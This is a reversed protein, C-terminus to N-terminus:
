PLIPSPLLPTMPADFTIADGNLNPLSYHDIDSAPTPRYFFFTVLPDVSANPTVTQIAWPLALFPLMGDYCFTPITM